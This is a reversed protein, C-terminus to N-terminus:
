KWRVEFRDFTREATSWTCVVEEVRAGPSGRKLFTELEVLRAEPGEAVVTVSGDNENRVWGVLGLHEACRCTYYRYSVGQVRGRVTATMQNM